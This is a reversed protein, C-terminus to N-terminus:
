FKYITQFEAVDSANREGCKLPSRRSLIIQLHPDPLIGFRQQFILVVEFTPLGPCTYSNIPLPLRKQQSRSGWIKAWPDRALLEANRGPRSDEQEQFRRWLAASLPKVNWVDPPLSCLKWGSFVTMCCCCCASAPCWEERSPTRYSGIQQLATARLREAGPIM